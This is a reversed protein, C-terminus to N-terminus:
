QLPSTWPASCIPVSGRPLKGHPCPFSPPSLHYSRWRPRRQWPVRLRECRQISLRIPTLSSHKSLLSVNVASRTQDSHLKLRNLLQVGRHCPLNPIHTSSRFARAGEMNGMAAIFFSVTWVCFTPDMGMSVAYAMEGHTPSTSYMAERNACIWNCTKTTVVPWLNEKERWDGNCRWPSTM